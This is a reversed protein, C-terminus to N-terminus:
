KEKKSEDYLEKLYMLESYRKKMEELDAELMKIRKNLETEFKNM